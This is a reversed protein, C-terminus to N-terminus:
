RILSGFMDCVGNVKGKLDSRERTLPQVCSMGKSVFGDPDAIPELAATAGASLSNQAAIYTTPAPSPAIYEAKLMRVGLFLHVGLNTIWNM